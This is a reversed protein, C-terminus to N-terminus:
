AASHPVLNIQSRRTGIKHAGPPWRNDPDTQDRKLGGIEERCLICASHQVRYQRAQEAVDVDVVEEDEM